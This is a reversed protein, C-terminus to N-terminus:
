PIAEPGNGRNVEIFDQLADWTKDDLTPCGMLRGTGLPEPSANWATEAVQYPMDRRPVLLLQYGKQKDFLAKLDARLSKSLSPKFWIVVRGHEQAHVVEVDKPATSYAGDDAPFQYHKGAAPPNTPYKVKQNVDSTHDRSTAHYSKTKCDAAKAAAALSTNKVDPVSGGGPLLEATAKDEGSSSGGGAVFVVVVVILAIAVLAGGAGYGIMRRRREAAKAAQEREERERRLAEKQEKRSAM